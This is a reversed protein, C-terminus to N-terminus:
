RGSSLAVVVVVRGGRWSYVRDGGVVRVSDGSEVEVVDSKIFYWVIVEHLGGWAGGPAPM